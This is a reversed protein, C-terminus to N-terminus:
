LLYLPNLLHLVAIIRLLYSEITTLEISFEPYQVPPPTPHNYHPATPNSQIFIQKTLSFNTINSNPIYTLHIEGSKIIYLKRDYNM